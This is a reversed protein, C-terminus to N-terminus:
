KKIGTMENFHAEYKSMSTQDIYKSIHSYVDATIQYSGHGLREQIFKMDVGAELQLVAHTHRLSHIPLSSIGAQKLIRKFANYLSSKPMIYGDERCFVLNLDHHYVDNLNQKNKNQWKLHDKLQNITNNTLSITRKSRFTKTDGFLEDDSKAQFDLTKNITVTKEKFNIDSWQLAAVEGKRMGTDIMFSFFFWYIYGYQYATKLFLSIDSSEIFKVENSKMKGKIVSGVTPNKELMNLQCAKELAGRMTGHIIEITRRSYGDDHLSNLFKQYMTPKLEKLTVKKFYPILHKDINRRHIEYTNKRVVDKKYEALWNVLYESLLINSNALEFNDLLAKEKEQAAFRAEPKTRFGRKSKERQQKTLPDEYKIRYEWLGNKHKRYSIGM